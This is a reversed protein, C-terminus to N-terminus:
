SKKIIPLEIIFRSGRGEGESEARIGGGHANVIEKAIYLGLGTSKIGSVSAFRHMFPQFLNKITEQPMGGGSDIVSVSVLGQKTEEISVKVFGKETFKIANDILNQVVQQLKDIDAKITVKPKTSEFTLILGKKNAMQRFEEIASSVIKVIDVEQFQYQMRGEEIARADTLNLSFKNLRETAEIIKDASM